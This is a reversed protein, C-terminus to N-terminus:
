QALVTLFEQGVAGTAGVVAVVPAGVKAGRRGAQSPASAPSPRAAPTTSVPKHEPYLAGAGTPRAFVSMIGRRLRRFGHAVEPGAAFAPRRRLDQSDADSDRPAGRASSRRSSPSPAIREGISSARPGSSRM